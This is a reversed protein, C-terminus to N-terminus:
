SPRPRASAPRGPPLPRHTAVISTPIPWRRICARSRAKCPRSRAQAARGPRTRAQLGAAAGTRGRAAAPGEGQAARCGRDAARAPRAPRPLRQLRRCVRHGHRRGRARDDLDGAPRPFRPRPEGAPRHRRLGVAGGAPSRAHRRRPRQDARRAGAPQVARGAGQRAAPPQARRGVPHARAPAGARRPVPIRASLEHRADAPRAGASPRQPRGPDGVADQRSRARRPAPRDGGAGPQRRAEGLRQRARARRDAHEALDDQGRRQARDPRHSGQPLHPDLFERRDGARGLAQLHQARHHRARRIARGFASKSPPAASRASRSAASSACPRRARAPPGRQPHAPRPHEQGGMRDRARDAPRAQAAGDGRTRPDREVLGRIRCLGQRAPARHRPRAVARRAVPQRPLAPRPEGARLRGELGFAQGGAM